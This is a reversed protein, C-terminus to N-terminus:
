YANDKMLDMQVNIVVMNVYILRLFTKVAMKANVGDMQASSVTKINMKVM